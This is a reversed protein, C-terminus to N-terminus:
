RPKTVAPEKQAAEESAIAHMTKQYENLKKSLDIIAQALVYEQSDEKGSLDSLMQASIDIIEPPVQPVNTLAQAIFLPTM